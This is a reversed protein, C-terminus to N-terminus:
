SNWAPLKEWSPVQRRMHTPAAALGEIGDFQTQHDNNVEPTEELFAAINNSLTELSTNIATDMFDEM